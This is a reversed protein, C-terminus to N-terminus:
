RGAIGAFFTSFWSQKSANGMAASTVPKGIKLESSRLAESCLLFLIKSLVVVLCIIM